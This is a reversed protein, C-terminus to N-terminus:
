GNSAAEWRSILDALTARNPYAIGQEDLFQRWEAKPADADPPTLLRREQVAAAQQREVSETIDFQVPPRAPPEKVIRVYGRRVLKRIFPTDEVVTREGRGLYTSPTVTGEIMIRAM